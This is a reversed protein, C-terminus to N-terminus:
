ARDFKFPSIIDGWRDRAKKLREKEERLVDFLVKPTDPIAEYYSWVRETKSLLQPVRIAFEKEYREEPYEKNLHERFLKVLDDYIPILGTPTEIAEVNGHVRLEIWKLWVRKDEKEAIYRGKEDKLFYNVGYIKPVKKLKKAFELHVEVFKGISISMFDLIAFPNIERTGAGRLIAKTKESELGAGKTIIGHVWDFAEQVPVWTDSDRGGFIMADVPVGMPDDYRPDLSKLYSLSATFRANPHSPPIENGSEDKKGPWWKGAYNVGPAVPEEKGNWWVRGDETLLVNSFIIEKDPDTLVEYLEPDDKPNVGDIIGFMGKEPNAARPIGDFEKIIAMDDGVILDSAFATSTKGCGAPFAGTIYTIRGGPGRIGSIFMHECLWGELSGKYVCLRLMPKKMGITNGGYQTNVAYASFDKPDIYIRRKDVDVIWGNEDRRGTAHVFRAYEINPAKEVFEDYCLRYLINENHAVYASDTVQVGYLTFPSRKPGFCYFGVFMEKGKMLGRMLERIEKLGEEREKTNIYVIREGKEVLIRTNVRDRAIDHPGDFHVTHKPYRSRIEERNRLAVERVYEFDDESTILYISSPELILSIEALWRHLKPDKIRLLKELMEEKMFSKLVNMYDENSSIPSSNMTISRLSCPRRSLSVIRVLPKLKKTQM